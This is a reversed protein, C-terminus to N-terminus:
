ISVMNSLSCAEFWNPFRTGGYHEITLSELKTDPRLEEHVNRENKSNYNDHGWWLVLKSLSRKDKLNVEMADRAHQVNQLNLISSSGSLHHLERLEKISSGNHKSVVFTTLKQLNILKHMHLPMEELKTEIIDLHCLNVLRWMKTPLKTLFKCRSILLTQLNYLSM